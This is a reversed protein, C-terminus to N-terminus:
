ISLINKVREDRSLEEFEKQIKKNIYRLYKLQESITKNDTNCDGINVM